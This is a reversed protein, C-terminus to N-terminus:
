FRQASWLICGRAIQSHKDFHLVLHLDMMANLYQILRRAKGWDDKNPERVRGSLLSVTPLIDPRSRKAVFLCKAVVTHFIEKKEKNLLGGEGRKYLDNAAPTLVTDKGKIEEPWASVIEEVYDKQIIHCKGPEVKFDIKM